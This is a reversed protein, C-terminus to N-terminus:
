VASARWLKLAVNEIPIQVIKKQNSPSIKEYFNFILNATQLDIFYGNVKTASSQLVIKKLQM